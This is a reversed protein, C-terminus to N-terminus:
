GLSRYIRKKNTKSSGNDIKAPVGHKKAWELANDKDVIAKRHWTEIKQQRIVENNPLFEPEKAFVFTAVFVFIICFFRMLIHGM